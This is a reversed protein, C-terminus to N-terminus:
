KAEGILAGINIILCNRSNEAFQKLFEKSTIMGALTIKSTKQDVKSFKLHIKAEWSMGDEIPLGILGNLVTKDFNKISSNFNKDLQYGAILMFYLFDTKPNKKIYKWYSEYGKFESNLQTIVLEMISREVSLSNLERCIMIEILNKWSYLRRSGRGRADELPTIIGTQTWHIAQMKTIKAIKQIESSSFTKDWGIEGLM